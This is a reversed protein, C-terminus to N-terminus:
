FFDNSLASNRMCIIEDKGSYDEYLEFEFDGDCGYADEDSAIFDTALEENGPKIRESQQSLVLYLHAKLNPFFEERCIYSHHNLHFNGQVKMACHWNLNSNEFSIM